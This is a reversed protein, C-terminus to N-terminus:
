KIFYGAARWTGDAERVFTVTETAKKKHEFSTTFTMVVYRGDPAGPLTTAERTKEVKRSVLKGLPTRVGALSTEWKERSVAGRFYTAAEQWSEPYRGADVLALWTRAASVATSGDSGAFARGATLCLFMGLLILLSATKM